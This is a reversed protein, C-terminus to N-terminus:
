IKEDKKIFNYLHNIIEEIVSPSVANGAQKYIQGDSIGVKKINLIFNDDFGQLRLNEIPSLKRIKYSNKIKFLLKTTDSRALITPSIGYISYVRRQRELDNWVNSPLDFLKIIKNELNTKYEIDINKLFTKVNENEIKYKSDFEKDLVDVLYKQEYNFKLSHFFNFMNFDNAEFKLKLQTIKKNKDYLGIIEKPYNYIGVLYTRDRNQPLGTESSNIVSFDFTYNLQNLTKLISEITEGNNHSILNKVNELLIYKPKKAKLIRAIDFFLTGRSDEFGKQKGAISFTQCPFGACLLDHDPIDYESIQKIDGHLIKNDFNAAYSKQAFKDIESAFVVDCPLNSNRIGLEFGGIGSFLSVIKLGSNEQKTHTKLNM